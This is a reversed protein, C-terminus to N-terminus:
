SVDWNLSKNANNFAKADTFMSQMNTVNSTKWDRLDRDFKSADNFMSSMTEVNSTDWKSINSNFNKAGWFV